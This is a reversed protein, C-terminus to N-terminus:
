GQNPSLRQLGTRMSSALAHTIEELVAPHEEMARASELIGIARPDRTRGLAWAAHSRVLASADHIASELAPVAEGSGSNGLAVVVNRVFGDRTARYVPSNGFRGAFADPTLRALPILDPMPSGEGSASKPISAGAATRNWPCAEQCDDCGFIHNGILPRMPLPIPGRLEITLYSICKRADLVYPEVIAGAPCADLCRRCTGCHNKARSDYDLEINLLIVGIFFWSGYRRSILNTHKGMWGIATQAGWAKEMVPGTDAYCLGKAEPELARIFGLLAELRRETTPHYDGGRAYRSIKGKLPDDTASHGADYNLSLVLVSRAGGLVWRPDLREAERRGMYRMEGHMGERLWKSFREGDPLPGAPVIGTGAFGLRLAEERIRSSLEVTTLPSM